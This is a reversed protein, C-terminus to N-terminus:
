IRRLVQQCLHQYTAEDGMRTWHCSVEVSGGDPSSGVALFATSEVGEASRGLVRTCPVREGQVTCTPEGLLVMPIGNDKFYRMTETTWSDLRDSPAPEPAWRAVLGGEPCTVELQADTENVSCDAPVKLLEATPRPEQRPEEVVPAPAPAAVAVDTEPQANGSTAPPATGPCACLVTILTLLLTNASLSSRSM